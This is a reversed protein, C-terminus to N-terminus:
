FDAILIELNIIPRVVTKVLTKKEDNKLNKTAYDLVFKEDMIEGITLGDFEDFGAWQFDKQDPDLEVNRVYVAGLTM